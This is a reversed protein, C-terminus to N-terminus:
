IIYIARRSESWNSATLLLNLANAQNNLHGVCDKISKDELVARARSEFNLKNAENWELRSLHNDIFVILLACSELASDLDTVLQHYQPGAALSISIWHSIQQLAAKLTALQGILLSVTLDAGKWQQQLHRLSIISRTMIDITGLVSGALGVISVPDM